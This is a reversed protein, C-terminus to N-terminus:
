GLLAQSLPERQTAPGLIREANEIRGVPLAMGDAPRSGPSFVLTKSLDTTAHEQWNQSNAHSCCTADLSHHVM